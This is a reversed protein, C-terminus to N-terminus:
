WGGGLVGFTSAGFHVCPELGKVRFAQAFYFVRLVLTRRAKHM